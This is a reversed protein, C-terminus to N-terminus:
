VSRLSTESNAPEPGTFLLENNAARRLFEDPAGDAMAWESLLLREYSGRRVIDGVGAPEVAVRAAHRRLPGVLPQLRLLLQGLTAALDDPFLALWGAWPQLLPPLLPPLTPPSPTTM